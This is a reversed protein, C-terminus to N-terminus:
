LHNTSVTAFLRRKQGDMGVDQVAKLVCADGRRESQKTVPLRYGRGGRRAQAQVPLPKSAGKLLHISILGEYCVMDFFIMDIFIM